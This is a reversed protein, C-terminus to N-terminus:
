HIHRSHVRTSLELRAREVVDPDSAPEPDPEATFCDRLIPYVVFVLTLLIVTLAVATVAVDFFLWPLSSELRGAERIYNV